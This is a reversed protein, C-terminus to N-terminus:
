IMKATNQDPKIPYKDEVTGDLGDSVPFSILSLVHNRFQSWESNLGSYDSVGCETWCKRPHYIVFGLLTYAAYWHLHKKVEKEALETFLLHCHDNESAEIWKNLRNKIHTKANKSSDTKVLDTNIWLEHFKLAKFCGLLSPKVWYNLTHSGKRNVRFLLVIGM